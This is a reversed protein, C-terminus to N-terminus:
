HVLSAYTSGLFHIALLPPRPYECSDGRELANKIAALTAAGTHRWSQRMYERCPLAQAYAVEGTLTMIDDMEHKADFNTYRYGELEWHVRLVVSYISDLNTPPLLPLITDRIYSDMSPFLFRRLDEKMRTFSRSQQLMTDNLQSLETRVKALDPNRFFTRPTEALDQIEHAALGSDEYCPLSTEITPHPAPSLKNLM